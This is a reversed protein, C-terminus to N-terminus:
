QDRNYDRSPKDDTTRMIRYVALRYMLFLSWTCITTLSLVWAQFDTM